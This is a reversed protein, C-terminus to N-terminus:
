CSWRLSRRRRRPEVPRPGRAGGRFRLRHLLRRARAHRRGSEALLKCRGSTPTSPPRWAMARRASWRRLAATAEAAPTRTRLYADILAAAEPKLPPAKADAAFPSCGRPSRPGDLARRDARHRGGGPARRRHDRRHGSQRSDLADILVKPVGATSRAPETSLRKLEARFAEPRWFQHRLAAAGAIPCTPLPSSPTSCAWMASACSGGRWGPRSCRACFSSWPARTLKARTRTASPRSAPSVSSARIPPTPARRSSASHPATTATSRRATPPPTVSCTSAAPPSRSTRGSACSRATSIPSFTPAGRAIGRRCRRPFVGAPQIIEPAVAEYGAAIFCRCCPHPGAGRSGRFKGAACLGYGHRRRECRGPGSKQGVRAPHALEIICRRM